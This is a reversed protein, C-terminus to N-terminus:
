HPATTPQAASERRAARVIALDPDADKWIEFLAAYASRSAEADGQHAAARARGLLALPYLPM